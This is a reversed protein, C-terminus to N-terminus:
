HAKLIKSLTREEKTLSLASAIALLLLFSRVPGELGINFTAYIIQAYIAWATWIWGRRFLLWCVLVHLVFFLGGIIGLRAIANLYSNHPGSVPARCETYHPICGDNPIYKGFGDYIRFVVQDQFGIGTLPKSLFLKFADLWMMTRFRELGQAGAEGRKLPSAANFDYVVLDSPKPARGRRSYAQLPPFTIAVILGVVFIVGARKILLTRMEPDRLYKFAVYALPLAMGVILTRQFATVYCIGFAAGIFILALYAWKSDAKESLAFILFPYFPVFPNMILSAWSVYQGVVTYAFYTFSLAFSVFCVWEVIESIRPVFALCLCLILYWAFASNRLALVATPKLTTALRLVSFAVLSLVILFLPSKIFKQVDKKKIFFLSIFCALLFFQEFVFLKITSNPISGLASLASLSLGWHAFESDGFMLGLSLALSLLALGLLVPRQKFSNFISKIRLWEKKM